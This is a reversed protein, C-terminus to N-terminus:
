RVESSVLDAVCAPLNATQGFWCGAGWRFGADRLASLISREPKEAFTVSTYGNSHNEVTVGNETAAAAQQRQQQAKISQLRKKDAQIRGGLNSMEYPMHPAKGFYPGAAVLKAKLTDLNIGLAALGSVDNKRYLANVKKMQERSAEHEAIRAEIAEIANEDDSFITRDLASELNRAKSEHHEALKTMEVSKGLANWSKDLTNRHRRESHHGVLIPQGMPIGSVLSQSRQYAANAKDTASVAWEARREIKQELRERRTM